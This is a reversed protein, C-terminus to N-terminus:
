DWEFVNRVAKAETADLIDRHIGINQLSESRQWNPGERVGAQLLGYPEFATVLTSPDHLIDEFKVILIKRRRIRLFAKLRIYAQMRVWRLRQNPHMHLVRISSRMHDAISDLPSRWCAVTPGAINQSKLTIESAPPDNNLVLTNRTELQNENALASVLRLYGRQPIHRRSAISLFTDSIAALIQSDPLSRFVVRNLSRHRAVGTEVFRMIRVGERTDPPAIRGETMLAALGRASLFRLSGLSTKFYQNVAQPVGRRLIATEDPPGASFGNGSGSDFLIDVLLSSGSYKFGTM